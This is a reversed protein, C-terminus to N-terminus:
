TAARITYVADLLHVVGNTGQRDRALIKAGNIHVEDNKIAVTVDKGNITKLKQGDRFDTLMTKGVLIHNCLLDTLESAHAPDLFEEFNMALLRGFALNSPGLITFPGKESLTEELGVARLAKCFSSLNRDANSIQIITAM